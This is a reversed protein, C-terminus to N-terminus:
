RKYKMNINVDREYTLKVKIVGVCSDCEVHLIIFQKLLHSALDIHCTPRISFHVPFEQLAGRQHWRKTKLNHISVWNICNVILENGAVFKIEM